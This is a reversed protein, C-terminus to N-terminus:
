KGAGNDNKLYRGAVWGQQGQYEVRCWRTLALQRQEKSMRAWLDMSPQNRRCGHNKLGRANPPIGALSRSEASPVDRLHLVDNAAVGTVAWFPPSPADDQAISATPGLAGVLVVLAIVSLLAARHM